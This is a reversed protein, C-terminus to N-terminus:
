VCCTFTECSKCLCGYDQAKRTECPAHTSFLMPAKNPQNKTEMEAATKLHEVRFQKWLENLTQYRLM